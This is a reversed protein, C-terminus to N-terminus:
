LESSQLKSTQQPPLHMHYPGFRVVPDSEKPSITRREDAAKTEDRHQTAKMAMAQQMSAIHRITKIGSLKPHEKALYAEGEGIVRAENSTSDKYIHDVIDMGWPIYAFPIYGQEDLYHNDAFNIIMATTRKHKAGPKTAPAFSVLGRLNSYVEREPGEDYITRKSWYKTQKPDAAIGFYSAFGSRAKHFRMNDFYNGDVLHKFRAVAFPAWTPHVEMVFAGTGNAAQRGHLNFLEVYVLFSHNTPNYGKAHNNALAEAKKTDLAAVGVASVVVSCAFFILLNKM